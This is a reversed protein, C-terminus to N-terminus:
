YEVRGYVLLQIRGATSSMRPLIYIINNNYSDGHCDNAGSWLNLGIYIGGKTAHTGTPTTKDSHPFDPVCWEGTPTIPISM